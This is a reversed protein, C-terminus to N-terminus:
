ESLSSSDDMEAGHHHGSDDPGTNSNISGQDSSHHREIEGNPMVASNDDNADNDSVDNTDHIRLMTHVATQDQQMEKQRDQQKDQQRDEQHIAQRDQLRIGNLNDPQSGIASTMGLPVFAAALVLSSALLAGKGKTM